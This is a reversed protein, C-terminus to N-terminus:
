RDGGVEIADAERQQRQSLTKFTVRHGVSMSAQVLSGPSLHRPSQYVPVAVIGRKTDLVVVAGQHLYETGILKGRVAQDPMLTLVWPRASSSSHRALSAIENQKLKNSVGKNLRLSDLTIRPSQSSAFGNAVLWAARAQLARGLESSVPPKSREDGAFQYRYLQRDLWTWAEATTQVDLSFKSQVSLSANRHQTAQLGVISGPQIVDYEPSLPIYAQVSRRPSAHLDEVVVFRRDTLEDVRDKAIVKGVVDASPAPTKLGSRFRELHPLVRQADRGMAAHIQKIVDSREGLEKLAKEYDVALKWRRPVAGIRGLMKDKVTHNSLALGLGQLTKMRRGVMEVSFAAGPRLEIKSLNLEHTHGQQRTLRQILRDLQTWREAHIQQRYAEKAHKRTREGLAKTAIMQARERLGSSIYSRDIVLDRENSRGRILVHSHPSQTNHHDVAMWELPVGLDKEMSHMVEQTYAQLDPLDKGREPSVIIRFHHRDKSWEDLIQTPDVVDQDPGYLVAPEGDKTVGDRQLYNIHRSLSQHGQYASHHRVLHFKVIVRQPNSSRQFVSTGRSFSQSRSSAGRRRRMGSRLRIPRRLSRGPRAIVEPDIEDKSLRTSM